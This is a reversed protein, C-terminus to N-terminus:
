AAVRVGAMRDRVELVLRATHYEGSRRIENSRLVRFTESPYVQRFIDPSLAALRLRGGCCVAELADRVDEASILIFVRWFREYDEM